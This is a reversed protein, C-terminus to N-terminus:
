KYIFSHKNKILLKVNKKYKEEYNLKSEKKVKNINSIKMRYGLIYINIPTRVISRITRITRISCITQINSSFM